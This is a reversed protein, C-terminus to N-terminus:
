SVKNVSAKVLYSIIRDLLLSRTIFLIIVALRVEKQPIVHKLMDSLPPSAM